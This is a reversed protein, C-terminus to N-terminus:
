CVCLVTLMMIMKGQEQVPRLLLELHPSLKRLIDCFVGFAKPGKRSLIDLLCEGQDTATLKSDVTDKDEESFIERSYLASAVRKAVMDQVLAQRNKRLRQRDSSDM